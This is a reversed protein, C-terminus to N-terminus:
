RRASTSTWLNFRAFIALRRLRAHFEALTGRNPVILDCLEPGYRCMTPDCPVARDVWLFLDIESHERAWVIERPDRIGAILDGAKFAERLIVSPDADRVREGVRFFDEAYRHRDALLADVSIGLERAVHPALFKSIPGAYQLGMVNREFWRAAEDKGAGSHGCFAIRRPRPM